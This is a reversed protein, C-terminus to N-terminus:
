HLMGERKIHSQRTFEIYHIENAEESLMIDFRSLPTTSADFEKQQQKSSFIAECFRQIRSATTTVTIQDFCDRSCNLLFGVTNGNQSSNLFFSLGFDFKAVETFQKLSVIELGASDFQLQNHDFFNTLFDFMTQLFAASSQRMQLDALIHQLPYHSHELVSVCTDRVTEVLEDFSWEASLQIRYPLTAVFMGVVNQLEPRYRNANISTVCLDNQGHTLKFLFAYFTALGLQFLTAQHTSAYALFSASTDSDFFTQIVCGAGSREENALHRRDAPLMLRDEIDYRELYSRWFERSQAMDIVHEHVSYDIYQLTDEDSSWVLNNAYIENLDNFIISRSTRDFAAYHFGIVLIDSEKMDSTQRDDNERCQQYLIECHFVRGSSLDFLQPNRSLQCIIGNLQEENEFTQQNVLTSMVVDTNVYQHVSAHEMDFILSTRLVAHKSLVYRFADMLRDVSLTGRVLRLVTLENYIGVEKAFRVKEDLFIREQAYSANALHALIFM